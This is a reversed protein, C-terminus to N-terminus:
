KGEKVLNHKLSLELDMKKIYTHRDPRGIYSM